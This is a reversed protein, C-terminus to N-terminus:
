SSTIPSKVVQWFLGRINVGGVNARNFEQVKEPDGLSSYPIIIEVVSAAPINFHGDQM